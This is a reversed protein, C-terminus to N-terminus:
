IRLLISCYFSAGVVICAGYINKLHGQKCHYHREREGSLPSKLELPNDESLSLFESDRREKTLNPVKEAFGKVHRPQSSGATATAKGLSRKPLLESFLVM